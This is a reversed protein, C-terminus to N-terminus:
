VAVGADKITKNRKVVYQISDEIVALNEKDFKDFATRFSGEDSYDKLSIGYKGLIRQLVSAENPEFKDFNVFLITNILYIKDRIFKNDSERAWEIIEELSFRSILYHYDLCITKKHELDEASPLDKMNQWRLASKGSIFREERALVAGPTTILESSMNNEKDLIRSRSLKQEKNFIEISKTGVEEYEDRIMKSLDRYKILLVLDRILSLFRNDFPKKVRSLSFYM